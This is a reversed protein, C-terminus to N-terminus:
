QVSASFEACPSKALAESWGSKWLAADFNDLELRLPVIQRDTESWCWYESPFMDKTRVVAPLEALSHNKRLEAIRGKGALDAWHSVDQPLLPIVQSNLPRSQVPPSVLAGQGNRVFLASGIHDPVMLLAFHGSPLEDAMRGIERRLADMQEGAERWPKLDLRLMVIASVLNLAVVTITAARPMWKGRPVSDLGLVSCAMLLALPIAPLYFLRNGEGEASIMGLHPSLAIMLMLGWAASFIWLHVAAREIICRLAGVLLVLGTLLIVVGTQHHTALPSVFLMRLKPLGGIM